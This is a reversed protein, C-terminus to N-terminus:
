RSQARGSRGQEHGTQAVRGTGIGGSDGHLTFGPEGHDNTDRVVLVATDDLPQGDGGLNGDAQWGVSIM